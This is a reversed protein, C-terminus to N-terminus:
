VAARPTVAVVVSRVWGTATPLHSRSSRYRALGPEAVASRCLLSGVARAALYCLLSDELHVLRCGQELFGASHCLLALGQFDSDQM